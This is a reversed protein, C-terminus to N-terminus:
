PRMEALADSLETRKERSIPIEQDNEMILYGGDGRVFQKIRRLNILFSRHCRFFKRTPPLLKEFEILKKSVVLQSGNNLYIETYSGDAKLYLLERIHVFLLGTAIPLAIKQDEENESLNIKLAAMREKHQDEQKITVKQLADQLRKIQIPKLLYDVASLEFAQIAYESYATVFIIQFNVADTDFFDLLQLGTYGPMEVDLFVLDPQTRRILKVAEPVDDGEGVIEVEPCHQSILHKLTNRALEEDDIVLARLLSM